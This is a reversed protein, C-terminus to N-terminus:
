PKGHHSKKTTKHKGVNARHRFRKATKGAPEVGKNTDTLGKVRAITKKPAWIVTKKEGQVVKVSFGRTDGIKRTGFRENKAQTM